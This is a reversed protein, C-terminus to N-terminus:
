VLLMFHIIPWSTLVIASWHLPFCSPHFLPLLALLCNPSEISERPREQESPPFLTTHKEWVPSLAIQTPGLRGPLAGGGEVEARCPKCATRLLLWGIFILKVSSGALLLYAESSGALLLYYWPMDTVEESMKRRCICPEASIHSADGQYGCLFGVNVAWM